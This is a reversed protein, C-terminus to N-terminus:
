PAHRSSLSGVIKHYGGPRVETLAAMSLEDLAATLETVVDRIITRSITGGRLGYNINSQVAAVEYLHTGDTLYRTSLTATTM